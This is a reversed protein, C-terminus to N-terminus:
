LMGSVNWDTVRTETVRSCLSLDTSATQLM